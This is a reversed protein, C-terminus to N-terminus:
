RLWGPPISQRRAREYFKELEKKYFSLKEKSNKLDERTKTINKKIQNKSPPFDIILFDSSLKNL